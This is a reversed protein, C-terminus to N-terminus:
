IHILSLTYGTRTTTALPGYSLGPTVSKSAPVATTGGQVNFAVPYSAKTWKAYLTPAATSTVITKDIVQTGTGGTGTWWGDFTYGTRTTIALTGYTAGYTVSTSTPTATTGGQADFAVPYSTVTWKAYLTQPATITVTTTSSVQTGTGGAGTWWGGFTYGTRTTTALTGYAAGYTVNKSTPAATSGGQADFTVSYSNATWKAYLTQAATITVTTTASM